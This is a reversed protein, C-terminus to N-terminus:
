APQEIIGPLEAINGIRPGNWDRDTVAFQTTQYVRMGLSKAGHLERDAGDGVYLCAAPPTDVAACALEYIRTDPKAIGVRYSLV